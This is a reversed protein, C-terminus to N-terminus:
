SANKKRKIFMIIGWVGVIYGIGGIIDRISIKDMQKRLDMLESRLGQLKADM